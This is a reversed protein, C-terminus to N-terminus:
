TELLCVKYPNLSFSLVEDDCFDLKKTICYYNIAQVFTANLVSVSQKYQKIKKEQDEESKKM